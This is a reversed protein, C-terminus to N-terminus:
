SGIIYVNIKKKIKAKSFQNVFNMKIMVGIFAILCSYNFIDYLFVKHIIIQM